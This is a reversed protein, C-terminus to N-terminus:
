GVFHVANKRLYKYQTIVSLIGVHKLGCPIMMILFYTDFLVAYNKNFLWGFHNTNLSIRWPFISLSLFPM